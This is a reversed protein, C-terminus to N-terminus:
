KEELAKRPNEHLCDECSFNTSPVQSQTIIRKAFITIALRMKWKQEWGKSSTPNSRTYKFNYCLM